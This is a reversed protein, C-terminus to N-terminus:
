YLFQFLLKLKKIHSKYFLFHFLEKKENESQYLAASAILFAKQTETMGTLNIHGKQASFSDVLEKFAPDIFAERLMKEISPLFNM